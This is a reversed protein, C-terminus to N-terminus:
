ISEGNCSNEYYSIVNKMDCELMHIEEGGRTLLLYAEILEQKATSYSSHPNLIQALKCSDIADAFSLTCCDGTTAVHCTNYEQLLANFKQTEKTIQISLKKAIKHGETYM